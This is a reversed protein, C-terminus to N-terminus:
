SGSGTASSGSGSGTTAAGWSKVGGVSPTIKPIDGSTALGFRQDHHEVHFM